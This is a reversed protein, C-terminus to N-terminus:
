FGASRLLRTMRMLRRALYAAATRHLDAAAARGAPTDALRDLDLCLVRAPTDALVAATRPVAAYYAIEGVLAGPLFRAVVMPQGDEGSVEARLRGELVQYIVTSLGGETMLAEGADLTLESTFASLDLEPHEAALRDRLSAQAEPDAGALLETEVDLLADELTPRTTAPELGDAAAIREAIGDHVGTLVFRAQNRRCLDAIRSLSFVASTDLGTVRSLDLIVRRPPAAAAFEARLLDLLRSATGFFLFGGLEFISTDGGREALRAMDEPSRETSSRRVAATSRLRVVDIGAYSITFLVVAALLGVALAELFGVAAATVLIMGIIAMDAAPLRRRQLWLWEYLMDVGLFAIVSAALGVPFAAILAAGFFLTVSAALAVVIGAAPGSVGMRSILMTEGILHYGPLGGTLGSAINGAGVSKLDRELDIERGLAVELGSANLLLGLVAMAAVAAVTPAQSLVAGWDARLPIDATLGALFNDGDFPGLLLGRGGAADLDLGALGLVAYFAAAGAILLAPLALDSAASRVVVVTLVSFAMWPVWRIAAGPEVLPGLTWISVSGKVMMSLAGLVLLLGTAALFGGIVPYPIFRAVSGLRFHGSAFLVLGTVVTSFGVLTAVTAFVRDPPAAALGTAIGTAAGALLIAPVDQAHGVLGRYSATMAVILPLAIGGLLSLGIGKSLHPELPGAYIFAAFSILFSVALVSLVLLGVLAAAYRALGSGGIRPRGEAIHSM